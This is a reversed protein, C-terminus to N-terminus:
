AVEKEQIDKKWQEMQKKTPIKEELFDIVDEYNLQCDIEDYTDDDENNTHGANCGMLMGDDGCFPCQSCDYEQNVVLSIFDKLKRKDKMLWDLREM